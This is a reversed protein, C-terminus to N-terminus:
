KLLWTQFLQFFYFCNFIYKGETISITFQKCWLCNKLQSLTLLIQHLIEFQCFLYAWCYTRCVCGVGLTMKTQAHPHTSCAYWSGMSFSDMMVSCSSFWIKPVRSESIGRWSPLLACGRRGSGTRIGVGSHQPLTKKKQNMRLGASDARRPWSVPRTWLVRRVSGSRSPSHSIHSNNSQKWSGLASIFTLQINKFHIHQMFCSIPM